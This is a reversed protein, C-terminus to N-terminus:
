ALSLSILSMLDALPWRTATCMPGLAGAGDVTDDDVVVVAGITAAFRALAIGTPVLSAAPAAVAAAAAVSSGVDVGSGVIDVASVATAAIPPSVVIVAAPLSPVVRPVMWM